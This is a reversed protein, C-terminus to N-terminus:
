AVSKRDGPSAPEDLVPAVHQVHERLHAHGHGRARHQEREVGGTDVLLEGIEDRQPHGDKHARREDLQQRDPATTPSKGDPGGPSSMFRRDIRATTRNERIVKASGVAALPAGPTFDASAFLATASTLWSRTWGSTALSSLCPLNERPRIGGCSRRTRMRSSFGRLSASPTANM